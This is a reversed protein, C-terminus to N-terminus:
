DKRATANEEEASFAAHPLRRDRRHGRELKRFATRGNEEGRIRSRIEAVYKPIVGLALKADLREVGVTKIALEEILVQLAEQLGAVSTRVEIAFLQASEELQGEGTGVLQHRPHVDALESFGIRIRLNDDIRCRGSMSQSHQGGGLVESLEACCEIRHLLFM